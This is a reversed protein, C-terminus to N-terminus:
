IIEQSIIEDFWVSEGHGSHIMIKKNFFKNKLISISEMIKTKSGGPLKTITKIDRIITDGTFLNNDIIICVSADTHGKTAIFEVNKGNWELKNNIDEIHIDASTTEFGIQNYFVSMNKKKNIIKAACDKSCVIKPNYIDKLKNIGWVHDFHEHTLFIFEPKLRKNNIFDIIDSSDETGPDIIICNRSKQSYAIFSNSDIPKNPIREILIEV